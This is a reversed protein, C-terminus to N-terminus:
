GEKEIFREPFILSHIPFKLSNKEDVPRSLFDIKLYILFVRQKKTQQKGLDQRFYHL